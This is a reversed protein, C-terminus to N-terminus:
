SKHLYWCTTSIPSKPGPGRSRWPPCPTWASTPTPNWFTSSSFVIGASSSVSELVFTGSNHRPIGKGREEDLQQYPRQSKEWRCLLGQGSTVPTHNELSKTKLIKKSFFLNRHTPRSIEWGHIDAQCDKPRTNQTRALSNKYPVHNSSYRKESSTSENVGQSLDCDQHCRAYHLWPSFYRCVHTKYQYYTEPVSFLKM